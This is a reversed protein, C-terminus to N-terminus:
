SEVVIVQTGGPMSVTVDGPDPQVVPTTWRFIWKADQPRANVCGHSMPVGFNNHWFTAHIAVGNGVFLTTWGIGPLDYGGGTTGGSMHLSVVKRWTPHAGLPTAWEDVPKGAANFKAGTSVRCFFIERGGEFCSLTQYTVDVVIRKDEIEPHIPEFDEQTLPRFAEARARFIDGYGYRENIRYYTQGTREDTLIRDVWLIQSYYLRPHPNQKLWPSRAPPNELILDVWPITVEVWMGDGLGSRPLTILPQNPQNRIPQLSGAWLYGDPTEVWRQNIRYPHYGVVERLWAVVADEYLTGVSPSTADPRAHLDLRGTAVRGLREFNPFDDAGEFRLRPLFAGGLTAGLGKLAERRSMAMEPM